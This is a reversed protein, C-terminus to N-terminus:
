HGLVLARRFERSPDPALKSMMFSVLIRLKSTHNLDLFESAVIGRIIAFNEIMVSPAGAGSRRKLLRNQAFWKCSTGIAFILRHCVPVNPCM